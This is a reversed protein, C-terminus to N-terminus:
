RLKAADDIHGLKDPHLMTRITVFNGDHEDGTFVCPGDPLDALLVAAGIVTAPSLPSTPYILHPPVASFRQSRSTRASRHRSVLNVLRVRSTQPRDSIEDILVVM